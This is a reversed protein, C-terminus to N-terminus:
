ATKQGGNSLGYRHLEKSSLQKKSKIVLAEANWPSPRSVYGHGNSRKEYAVSQSTTYTTRYWIGEVRELLAEPNSPDKRIDQNVKVKPSKGALPVRMLIGTEPHVYLNGSSLPFFSGGGISMPNGEADFKIQQEVWFGVHERLHRGRITRLDTHQCIDSWVDDWKRGVNKILFRKLPLTHDGFQKSTRAMKGRRHNIDEIYVGDEDNDVLIRPKQRGRKYSRKSGFGQWRPEEVILDKMDSRMTTDVFNHLIDSEFRDGGAQM